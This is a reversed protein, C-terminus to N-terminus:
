RAAFSSTGEHRLAGRYSSVWVGAIVLVTALTPTRLPYDFVSALALMVVIAVGLRALSRGQVGKSTRLARFAAAVFWIVAGLILLLGPLGADMVLELWDNHAHNLYKSQLLEAPEGLRYAEVFTGLGSGFPMFRGIHDVIVPWAQLRFEKEQQLELIRLVTGTPFMIAMAVLAVFIAVLVAALKRQRGFQAFSAKGGGIWMAAAIGIVVLILGARSGTLLVFPVLAIGLALLAQGIWGSGLQGGERLKLLLYGIMPLAVAVFAANHNRNAFLGVALGRNTIRYLYLGANAPGLAQFLGLLASVAALVIMTIVLRRHMRPTDLQALMVLAAFPVLLAFLSNWTRFPVLSLPRWAAEQGTATNVVAMADVVTERGPLATWVGPPLPILHLIHLLVLGGLLLFLWGHRRVQDWRLGVLGIGLVLGAFPRLFLLSLTDDRSAGGMAFVIVIFLIMLIERWTWRKQQGAARHQPISASAM